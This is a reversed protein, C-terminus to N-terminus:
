DAFLPVVRFRDVDVLGKETLKLSPIVPLTMFSLPMFPDHHPCGLARTADLLRRQSAIVEEASRDSMLGAIPLPLKALVEGRAVACQGGGVAALTRAALLMDDDNTGVICLNHADHGVTSAIAGSALGFGRVFGLGVSGSGGHREIVAMKLIDRSPDAVVAGDRVTPPEFLHATVLQHPDMGIVRLRAGSSDPVAVRFSASELSRSLVIRPPAFRAAKSAPLYVGDRSVLSGEFFTMRPRPAALDDFVIMDAAYGPAIAGRGPRRYHRATNISAITLALVPDLGHAIALRVVHDIHGEDRLDGPHRDDTCFSFRHATAPTILPLIADLNRAASGQRIHIHMGARLKERAEEHTTCEHDSSIGAAIYAQLARGSLRPAHGDVALRPRAMNIKALLGADGAVVGPFNMVEALAVVSPHDMLPALDDAELRAGSSELDCSPVCSSLAIMADLPLGAADEIIARIGPVGQVNAIEHPDFVAGTTGHPSALRVFQSPPLMSSEVHMHADIFGPALFAGQLDIVNGPAAPSAPRPDDIVAAIRGASVLVSGPRVEGSLVNVVRANILALDAPADGRCAALFEPTAPPPRM